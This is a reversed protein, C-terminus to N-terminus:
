TAFDFAHTDVHVGAFVGKLNHLFADFRTFSHAKGVTALQFNVKDDERSTDTWAIFQGGLTSQINRRAPPNDYVVGALSGIGIDVSDAFACAPVVAHIAQNRRTVFHRLHSNVMNKTVFVGKFTGIEAGFQFQQAYINATNAVCM